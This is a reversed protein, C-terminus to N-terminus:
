ERAEGFRWHLGLGFVDVRSEIVGDGVVRGEQIEGSLPDIVIQALESNAIEQRAMFSQFLGADVDLRRAVRLTFGAGYGLMPAGVLGVGRLRKPLSGQEWFLGARLRWRDGLRGEGGLRVSWTDNFGTPIIVDDTIEVDELFGENMAVTMDVDTLVLEPISSWGEYVGALEVELADTPRVLAGLRLIWPMTIDTRITEDAAVPEAILGHETYYVNESFDAELAGVADFKTPGQTAAAVAWRGSPPEVVVGANWAIAFDDRVTATFGVDYDQRETETQTWLSIAREQSTYLVNWSAGAGVSVWGAIEHAVSLGSFSQVVASDVLSYRQPGAAPYGFDPAYPPYFGIAFVTNPLGFSHAVGLHPIVFFPASNAIPANILDEGDPGEGPYDARDFSVAQNVAAVNLTLAGGEIRTLAAPNYWLALLDDCGAVYAGGRSFARVGVDSTYYGSAHANPALALAVLLM